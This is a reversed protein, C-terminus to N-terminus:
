FIASSEEFLADAKKMSRKICGNNPPRFGEKAGTESCPLGPNDSFRIVLCKRRNEALYV